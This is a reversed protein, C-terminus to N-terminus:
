VQETGLEVRELGLERREGAPPVRDPHRRPGVREAEREDRQADAVPSSTITGANVATGVAAATHAAPAVGTKTSTSGSVAVCRDRGRRLGRHGVARAGDDGHVEVPPRRHDGVEPTGTTSSPACACPASSGCARSRSRARVAEVRGLVQTPDGVAARDDGVVVLQGRREPESRAWPTVRRSRACAPTSSRAGTRRRPRPAARRAAAARPRCRAAPALDRRTVAGRRGLKRQCASWSRWTYWRHTARSGSRAPRERGPGTRCRLGSGARASGAARRGPIGARARARFRFRHAASHTDNGHKGSIVSSSISATHRAIRHVRCDLGDRDEEGTVVVFGGDGPHDLDADRRQVRTPTLSASTMTTFSPDVSPEAATSASRM